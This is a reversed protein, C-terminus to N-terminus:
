IFFYCRCLGTYRVVYEGMVYRVSYFQDEHISHFVFDKCNGYLGYVRLNGDGAENAIALGCKFLGVRIFNNATQGFRFDLEQNFM